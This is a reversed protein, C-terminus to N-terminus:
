MGPMRRRQARWAGWAAQWASGLAALEAKELGGEVHQGQAPGTWRGACQECAQGLVM